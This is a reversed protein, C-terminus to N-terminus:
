IMGVEALLEQTAQLDDLDSLDIKPGKISSLPPVGEAADIGAVLPYEFTTTAFFQQGEDSLLYTVFEEAAELDDSGELIGVGAVNILSSPDGPEAFAMQTNLPTDGAEAQREFLYYHNVLGLSIEGAEVADLTVGNDEYVKGNQKLGILFERTKEEGALVRMATVFSQFSANTPAYGVKGAWEPGTLEYVSKPPEVEDPNYVFVRARGSVGVWTSDTARYKPDVASILDDPLKTFLGEKSLAGLAGGDQSYFVDASTSDGEELLQAALEPTEAYRVEVELGSSDEFDTILDAVLSEARGSYITLDADGSGGGIAGCGAVGFTLLPIGILAVTRRAGILRAFISSSLVSGM